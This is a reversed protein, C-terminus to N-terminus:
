VLYSPPKKDRAETKSTDKGEAKKKAVQGAEKEVKERAGMKEAKEGGDGKM